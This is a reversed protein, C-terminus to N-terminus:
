VEYGSITLSGAIGSGTTYKLVNDATASKYPKKYAVVAGGNAALNFKGVRLTTNDTADFITIAGAASASLVIDCIVFKKGAAPTWITQGTQSATFDVTKVVLTAEDIQDKVNPITLVDVDGINNTGAALAPLSTLSVPQTAQWFTGTVPTSPMSAISVPQTAQYFSGTVAVSGSVAVTGDVTLSGGGDTVAHSPVSALSVPVATARLQTDTLGGTTVSGSVPVPTARLQADTVPGTVAVTPMTTVVVAGTNCATVKGSLAALTSETSAGTPLPLAAASIAQTTIEVGSSNSPVYRQLEKTVGDESIAHTAINKGSGETISIKSAM